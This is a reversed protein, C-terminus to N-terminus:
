GPVQEGDTADRDRWDRPLSHDLVDDVTVAGLLRHTSDVVPMAVLDYTAMRRTIELLGTDTRLQGIDAADDGDTGRVVPLESSQDGFTVSATTPRTLTDGGTRGNDGTM